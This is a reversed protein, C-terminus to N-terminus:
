GGVAAPLIEGVDVSEEAVDLAGHAMEAIQDVGGVRDVLRVQHRRQRHGAHQRAVPELRMRREDGLRRAAAARRELAEAWEEEAVRHLDAVRQEGRVDAGAVHQLGARPRERHADGERHLVVLRQGAALRLTVLRPRDAEIREEVGAPCVVEDAHLGVAAHSEVRVTRGTRFRAHRHQRHAVLVPGLRQLRRDAVRRPRALTGTYTVSFPM